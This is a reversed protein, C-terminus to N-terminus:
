RRRTAAVTVGTVGLLLAIIGMGVWPLADPGGTAALASPNATKAPTPTVPAPAPETPTPTPETVVPCELGELNGDEIVVVDHELVTEEHRVAEGDEGRTYWISTVERTIGVEDGVETDCNVVPESWPGFIAEDEPLPAVFTFTTCGITVSEVTTSSAEPHTYLLRIGTVAVDGNYAIFEEISGFAAYGMGAEVGFWESTSWLNGGYSPEEEFVITGEATDIHLGLYQTETATVDLVTGIDSLTSVAAPIAISQTAWDGPVSLVGDGEIWEHGTVTTCTPEYTPPVFNATACPGTVSKLIAEFDAPAGTNTQFGVSKVVANPWTEAITAISTGTQYAVSSSDITTYGPFSLSQYAKGGDAKADIVIRFFFQETGGTAVFSVPSWGQLNGDVPVRYGTAKGGVSTFSLGETTLVPALDDHETYWAGISTCARPQVGVKPKEVLRVQYHSVSPVEPHDITVTASAPNVPVIVKTTSAKVCYSDVLFGEPATYEVTAPDGVTDVKTEYGAEDCIMDPQGLPAVEPASLTSVPPAPIVEPAPPEPTVPAEEPAVEQPESVPDPLSAPAEPVQVEQETTLPDSVPAVVEDAMAATPGALALALMLAAGATIVKKM